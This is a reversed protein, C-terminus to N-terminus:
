SRQYLYTLETFTFWRSTPPPPIHVQPEEEYRPMLCTMSSPLNDEADLLKCLVKNGRIEIIRVLGPGVLDLEDDLYFANPSKRKTRNM